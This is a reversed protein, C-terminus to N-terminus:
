VDAQGVGVPSLKYRFNFSVMSIGRDDHEGCYGVQLGSQFTQPKSGIIIKGLRDPKLRKQLGKALHQFFSPQHNVVTTVLLLKFLCIKTNLEQM